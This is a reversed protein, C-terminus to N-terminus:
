KEILLTYSDDSYGTLAYSQADMGKTHQFDYSEVVMRTIGFCERLYDCEVGVTKGSQCIAALQNVYQEVRRTADSRLVGGIKVAWDDERWSEKITGRVVGGKAVNRRVIINKGSVSMVPDIPLRLREGEVTLTVPCQVVVAREREAQLTAKTDNGYVVPEQLLPWAARGLVSSGVDFVFEKM